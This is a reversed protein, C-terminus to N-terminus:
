LVPREAAHQTAGGEGAREVQLPVVRRLVGAGHAAEDAGGVQEALDAREVAGVHQLEVVVHDVLVVVRRRDAARAARVAHRQRHVLAAPLVDLAAPAPLLDVDRLIVPPDERAAGVARVAPLAVVRRALHEDALDAVVLRALLRAHRAVDLVVVRLAPRVLAAVTRVRGDLPWLHADVDRRVVAAPRLHHALALLRRHVEAVVDAHQEALQRERQVVGGLHVQVLAVARAVRLARVAHLQRLLPTGVGDLLQQLRLTGGQTALGVPRRADGRVAAAGAAGAAVDADAAVDAVEREHRLRAAALVDGEHVVDDAAAATAATPAAPAAPAATPRPTLALLRRAAEGAFVEAAADAAVAAVVPRAHRPVDLVHVQGAPGVHAWVALVRIHLLRFHPQVHLRRVAHAQQSHLRVLPQEDRERGFHLLVVDLDVLGTLRAEGVDNACTIPENHNYILINQAKLLNSPFLPLNCTDPATHM